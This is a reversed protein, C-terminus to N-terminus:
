SIGRRFHTLLKQNFEQERTRSVLIKAGGAIAMTDRDKSVVFNLNVIYSRHCRFFRNDLNHQLAKLTGFYEYSAAFTYIYIKHDMAECYLIDRIYIYQMSNGKSIVLTKCDSEALWTFAKDLAHFLKINSVPKVLYHIADLDFAEVAYERNSAVFIVQSSKNHRRLQHIVELGNKGPLKMDMIIIDFSCAANLLDEGSSFKTINVTLDREKLYIRVSNQLSDLFYVEDDCIAFSLM